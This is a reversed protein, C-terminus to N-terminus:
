SVWSVAPAVLGLARNWSVRNSFPAARPPLRWEDEGDCDGEGAWEIDCSDVDAM